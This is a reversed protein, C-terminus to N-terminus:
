VVPFLNSDIIHQLETKGETTRTACKITLIRGGIHKPPAGREIHWGHEGKGYEEKYTGTIMMHLQKNINAMNAGKKVLINRNDNRCLNEHVHGMTFIDFGEYMELARTLNINGKTVIGGGGSGHHYRIKFSQRFGRLIIWGGYGGLQINSGTKQNLSEVIMKLLDIEHRKLVSTEHNGYGIVTILHAYPKLFEVTTRVIAGFYDVNQHEPRIDKKSGRPDWKGQMICLTDGNLFIPIMNEKCYDLHRKLLQQDCKPNDLHLDSLCALKIEGTQSPNDFDNYTLEHVNSDIQKIKMKYTKLCPNFSCQYGPWAIRHM